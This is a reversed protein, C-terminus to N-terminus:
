QPLYDYVQVRAWLHKYREIFLDHDPDKQYLDHDEKSKFFLLLAYEYTNDVVERPTGAPPGIFSNLITKCKTLEAVGQHFKVRDEPTVDDKMWFFVTHIFGPRQM